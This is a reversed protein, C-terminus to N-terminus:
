PHARGTGTEWYRQVARLKDYFEAADDGRQSIMVGPMTLSRGRSRRVRAVREGRAAPRHEISTIQEWPIFRRSLYTHFRMGAPTLIMAGHMRNAMYFDCPLCCLAWFGGLFWGNGAAGAVASAISLGAAPVAFGLTLAGMVIMSKRRVHAPFAIRLEDVPGPYNGGGVVAV